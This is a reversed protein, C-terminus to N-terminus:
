LFWQSESIDICHNCDTCYQNNSNMVVKYAITQHGSLSSQLEQLHFIRLLFVVINTPLGYCSLEVDNVVNDNNDDDCGYHYNRLHESLM